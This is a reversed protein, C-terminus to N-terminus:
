NEQKIYITGKRQINENDDNVYQLVYFYVGTPLGKEANLTARGSSTGDFVITTNNYSKENFVEVGWRNFIILRNDPYCEIGEIIFNDNV